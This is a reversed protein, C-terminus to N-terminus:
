TKTLSLIVFLLPYQSELVPYRFKVYFLIINSAICGRRIESHELLQRLALFNYNVCSFDTISLQASLQVSIRMDTEAYLDM